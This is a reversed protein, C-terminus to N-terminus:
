SDGGEQQQGEEEDDSTDDDGSAEEERAKKAKKRKAARKEAPTQRPTEEEDDDEDLEGDAIARRRAAKQVKDRAEKALEQIKYEPLNQGAPLMLIIGKESDAEVETSFNGEQVEEFEAQSCEEYIGKRLADRAFIKARQETPFEVVDAGTIGFGSRTDLWAGRSMRSSLRIYKPDKQAM